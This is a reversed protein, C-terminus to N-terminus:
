ALAEKYNTLLTEMAIKQTEVPATKKLQQMAHSIVMDREKYIQSFRM